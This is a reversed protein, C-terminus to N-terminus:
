RAGVLRERPPSWDSIGRRRGRRWRARTRTRTRWRRRPRAGRTRWCEGVDGEAAAGEGGGGGKAGGTGDKNAGGRTGSPRVKGRRRRRTRGRTKARGAGRERRRDRPRHRPTPTVRGVGDGGFLIWSSTRTRSGARCPSRSARRESADSTTVRVRATRTEGTPNSDWRGTWGASPAAAVAVGGGGRGVTKEGSTGRMKLRPSGDGRRTTTRRSPDGRGRPSHGESVRPPARRTRELKRATAVEPDPDLCLPATTAAVLAGEVALRPRAQRRRAIAIREGTTGKARSPRWRTSSRPSRTPMWPSPRPNRLVAVYARPTAKGVGADRGRYDRVEVLAAGEVYALPVGGRLGRLRGADISRLLSVSSRDYPHLHDRVRELARRYPPPAPPGSFTAPAQLHRVPRCSPSCSPSSLRRAGRPFADLHFGRPDARVRRSLIDRLAAPTTIASAPLTTVRALRSPPASVGRSRRPLPIARPRLCTPSPALSPLGPTARVPDGSTPRPASIRRPMGSALWRGTARRARSPCRWRYCAQRTLWDGGRRPVAIARRRSIRAVRGAGRDRRSVARSVCSGDRRTGRGDLVVRRERAHTRRRTRARRASTAPVANNCCVPQQQTSTITPRAFINSFDHNFTLLTEM